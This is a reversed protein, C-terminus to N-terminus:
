AILIVEDCHARICFLELGGDGRVIAVILQDRHVVDVIVYRLDGDEERVLVGGGQRRRTPLREERRAAAGGRRMELADSARHEVRDVAAHGRADMAGVGHEGLPVALVAGRLLSAWTM